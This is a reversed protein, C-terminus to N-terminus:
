TLLLGICGGYSSNGKGKHAPAKVRQTKTARRRATSSWLVAPSRQGEWDRKPVIKTDRHKITHSQRTKLDSCHKGRPRIQERKKDEVIREYEGKRQNTIHPQPRPISLTRVREWGQTASENKIIITMSLSIDNIIYVACRSQCITSNKPKWWM